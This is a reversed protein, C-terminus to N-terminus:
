LQPIGTNLENEDYNMNLAKRYYNYESVICCIMERILRFEEDDAIKQCESNKTEPNGSYYNYAFRYSMAIKLLKQSSYAGNTLHVLGSRVLKLLIIAFSNKTSSHFRPLLKKQKQPCRLHQGM